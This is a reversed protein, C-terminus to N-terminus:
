IHLQSTVILGTTSLVLYMNLMSAWVMQFSNCSKILIVIFM